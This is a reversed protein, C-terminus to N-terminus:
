FFDIKSKRNVPPRRRAIMRGHTRKLELQGSAGPITRAAQRRRQVFTQAGVDQRRPQRRALLQMDRPEGFLKGHTEGGHTLRQRSKVCVRISM